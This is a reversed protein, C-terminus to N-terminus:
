RQKGMGLHGALFNAMVAIAERSEPMDVSFWFGHPMAEFVYLEAERGARRLALHFMAASSLVADRTGSVLLTPPFATLDGKIPAVLPDNRDADGLFALRESDPADMKAGVHGYFGSLTLYNFTDGLEAIDGGATFMGCCAPLPLGEAMFRMIAMATLFGGASTGFLAVDQAAHRQLVERYVAVIDDVAAPYPHEPALRYDVAIVECGALNAIPIAEVLSGSGLVFGGGHLNIMVKAANAAPADIPGIRHCRVGGIRCEEVVVPYTALAQQNLFEFMPALADRMQWMPLPSASEPQGQNPDFCLYARAEPSITAPLELEFRGMDVVGDTVKYSNM